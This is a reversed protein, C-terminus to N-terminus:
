AAQRAQPSDFPRAPPQQYSPLPLMHQARGIAIDRPVPVGQAPALRPPTSSLSDRDFSVANMKEPSIDSVWDVLKSFPVFRVILAVDFAMAVRKLTSLTLKDYSPNEILSIRARAMGTKEALDKQTWPEPQSERMTQIQAAINTSLHGAVFAHRYKKSGRMKAWLQARISDIHDSM